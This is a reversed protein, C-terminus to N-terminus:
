IKQKCIKIQRHTTEELWISREDSHFYVTWNLELVEVKDHYKVKDLWRTFQFDEFFFTAWTFKYSDNGSMPRVKELTEIVSDTGNISVTENMKKYIFDAVHLNYGYKESREVELNSKLIAKQRKWVMIVMKDIMYIIYCLVSSLFVPKFAEQGSAATKQIDVYGGYPQMEKDPLM